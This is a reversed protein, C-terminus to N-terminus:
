VREGGEGGRKGRVEDKGEGACRDEGMRVRVRM